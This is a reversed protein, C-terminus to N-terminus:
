GVSRDEGKIRVFGDRPVDRPKANFTSPPLKAFWNHAFFKQNAKPNNQPYISIVHPVIYVHIILAYSLYLM